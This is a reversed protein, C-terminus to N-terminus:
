NPFKQIMKKLSIRSATLNAVCGNEFEIRANSITVYAEDSTSLDLDNVKNNLQKNLEIMEFKQNLFADEIIEKATDASVDTNKSNDIAVKVNAVALTALKDLSNLERYANAHAEGLYKDSGIPSKQWPQKVKNSLNTLIEKDDDTLGNDNVFKAASANKEQVTVLLDKLVTHDSTLTSRKTTIQSVLAKLETNELPHDDYM